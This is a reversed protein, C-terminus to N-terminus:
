KINYVETWQGESSAQGLTKYDMITIKFEQMILGSWIKALTSIIREKEQQPIKVWADKDVYVILNPDRSDYNKIIESYSGFLNKSEGKLYVFADAKTLISKVEAKGSQTQLAGKQSQLQKEEKCGSIIIGTLCLITAFIIGRSNKIM